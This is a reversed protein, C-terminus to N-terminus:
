SHHFSTGGFALVFVSMSRLVLWLILGARRNRKSLKELTGLFLLGCVNAVCSAAAVTGAYASRESEGCDTPDECLLSAYAFVTTAAIAAVALAALLALPLYAYPSTNGAGTTGLATKSDPYSIIRDSYRQQQQEQINLLATTEDASSISEGLAQGPGPPM